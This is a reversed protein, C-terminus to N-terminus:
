PAAEGTESRAQPGVEAATLWRAQVPTASVEDAGISMPEPRAQGDLDVNVATFNGAAAGLAPSEQHPRMIGLADPALRPDAKIFGAPLDGPSTVQWALNGSWVGDTYPGEIKAATGGSLLLNNAFTTKTAGLADGTRRSMQYHTRNNVLTNSVILCEDPRDHGNLPAGDAVEGSGNGLSIGIYNGEIYNSFVRHRDGYIRVAEINKFYNGYVSCENGHRLAFQASGSDSFTNYRYTIGSARNSVLASEGRCRVFLNHEVLGAGPSLSVATLGYRLMEAGVGGLSTFDRFYNHHIWLRRAIQSGTGAIAIMNGAMKKEAFENYDIEVDDGLVSLYAGEGTCLFTNRTFRVRTTGAGISIRGAAHTFKFGSIIVNAAPPNVIFGHTGAIEVGGVSEASITIPLEPQGARRVQIPGSTQYVGNRLTITDGPAAAQIKAQLAAITDVIHVGAWSTAPLGLTVALVLWRFCLPSPVNM